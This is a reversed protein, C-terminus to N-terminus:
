LCYLFSGAESLASVKFQDLVHGVDEQSRDLGKIGFVVYVTAGSEM